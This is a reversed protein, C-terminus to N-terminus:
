DSEPLPATAEKAVRPRVSWDHVISTRFVVDWLARNAGSFAVWFLGIPFLVCFAARLVLVPLLGNTGRFSVLRLGMVQCGVTRGSVRWLVALYLVAVLYAIAISTLLPPVSAMRDGGPVVFVVITVGVYGGILLVLVVLADIGAAVCRSVIGARRGQFARAEKPIPDVRPSM